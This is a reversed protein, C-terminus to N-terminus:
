KKFMIQKMKKFAKKRPTEFGISLAEKKIDSRTFVQRESKTFFSRMFNYQTEEIYLIGEHKLVRHLERLTNKWNHAGHLAKTDFIADFTNAEFPLAPENGREITIYKINDTGKHTVTLMHECINLKILHHPKVYEKLQSIGHCNDRRIELIHPSKHPAISYASNIDAKYMAVFKITQQQPNLLGRIIDM